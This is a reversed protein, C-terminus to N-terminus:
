FLQAFPTLLPDEGSSRLLANCLREADTKTILGCSPASSPLDGALKLIELQEPQCRSCFIHLDDCAANIESLELDKLVTKFIQPLCLRKEGGVNFCAIRENELLTETRESRSNDAPTFVPLQQVQHNFRYMYEFEKNLGSRSEFSKRTLDDGTLKLMRSHPSGNPLMVVGGPGQLTRNASTQFSKLVRQIQPSVSQPASEM